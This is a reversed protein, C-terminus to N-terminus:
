KKVQLYQVINDIFMKKTDEKTQGIGSTMSPIGTVPIYLFAPIGKIGFVQALEQEKDTNIKYIQVKGAYEKAIEDLIPAAIKCPGCWDAYFDIIAPLKGKYKWETPTTNYDWITQIFLTKDLKVVNSNSAEKNTESIQEVKIKDSQNRNGCAIIILSLLAFILFLSKMIERNLQYVRLYLFAFRFLAHYKFLEM